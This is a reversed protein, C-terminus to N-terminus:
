EHLAQVPPVAHQERQGLGVRLQPLYGGAWATWTPGRHLVNDPGSHGNFGFADWEASAGNDSLFLFLTNDLEGHKRLDAVVRGLNQDMRDVMAAYIAM